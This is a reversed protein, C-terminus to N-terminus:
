FFAKDVLIPLNYPQTEPFIYSKQGNKTNECNKHMLKKRNKTRCPNCWYVRNSMHATELTVYDIHDIIVMM